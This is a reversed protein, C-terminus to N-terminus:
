LIKLDMKYVVWAFNVYTGSIFQCLVVLIKNHKVDWLDHIDAPIMHYKKHELHRVRSDSPLMWIPCLHAGAEEM